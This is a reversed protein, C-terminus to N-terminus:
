SYEHNGKLMKQRYGELVKNITYVRDSSKSMVLGIEDIVAQLDKVKEELHLVYSAKRENHYLLIHQRILDQIEKLVNELNLEAM